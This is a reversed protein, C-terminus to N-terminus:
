GSFKFKLIKGGQLLGYVEDGARQLKDCYRNGGGLSKSETETLENSKLNYCYTHAMTNSYTNGCVFVKDGVYRSMCISYYSSLGRGWLDLETRYKLKKEGDKGRLSYVQMRSAESSGNYRVLVVMRESKECVSLYFCNEQRESKLKIQLREVEKYGSFDQLDVEYIIVLGEKNVTLIRNDVLPEHSEIRCGTNNEIIVERGLSGDDKVEVVVLETENVNIVVASQDPTARIIKNGAGFTSIKKKDWWVTPDSGDEAKRLIRGPKYNYIYYSGKCTVVGYLYKMNDQYIKSYILQGNKRLSLGHHNLTSLFSNKGSYCMFTAYKRAKTMLESAVEDNNIEIKVESPNTTFSLSRSHEQHDITATQYTKTMVAKDRKETIGQKIEAEKKTFLATKLHLDVESQLIKNIKKFEAEVASVKDAQPEFCNTTLSRLQILNGSIQTVASSQYPDSYCKELYEEVLKFVQQIRFLLKQYTKSHFNNRTRLFSVLYELTSQGTQPLSKSEIQEKQGSFSDKPSQDGEIQSLVLELSEYCNLRQTALWRFYTFNEIANGDYDVSELLKFSELKRLEVQIKQLESKQFDSLKASSQGRPDPRTNM